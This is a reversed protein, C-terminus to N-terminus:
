SRELVLGALGLADLKGASVKGARGRGEREDGLGARPELRQGAQGLAKGVECESYALAKSVGLQRIHRRSVGRQVAPYRAVTSAACQGHIRAGRLQM